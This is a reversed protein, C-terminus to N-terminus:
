NASCVLLLSSFTVLLLFILSGRRRSLVLLCFSSIVLVAKTVAVWGSGTVILCFIFLFLLFFPRVSERGLLLYILFVSALMASESMLGRLSLIRVRVGLDHAQSGAM